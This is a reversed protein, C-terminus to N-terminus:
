SLVKLPAIFHDFSGSVKIVSISWGNHIQFRDNIQITVSETSQKKLGKYLFNLTLGWKIEPVSGEITLTRHLHSLDKDQYIELERLSNVQFFVRSIENKLCELAELLHSTSVSFIIPESDQTMLRNRYDPFEKDVTEAQLENDEWCFTLSDGITVEVPPANKRKSLGKKLEKATKIPIIYQGEIPESFLDPPTQSLSSLGLSGCDTTFITENSFDLFVCESYDQGDIGERKAEKPNTIALLTELSQKLQRQDLYTIQQTKTAM